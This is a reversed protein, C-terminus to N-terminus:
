GQLIFCRKAIQSKSNAVEFGLIFIPPQQDLYPIPISCRSVIKHSGQGKAYRLKNFRGRTSPELEESLLFSFEVIYRNRLFADVEGLKFGFHPYKNVPCHSKKNM